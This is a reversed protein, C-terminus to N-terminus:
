SLMYEVLTKVHKEIKTQFDYLKLQVLLIAPRSAKKVLKYM